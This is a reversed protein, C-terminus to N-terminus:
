TEGGSISTRPSKWRPFELLIVCGSAVLGCLVGGELTTTPPHHESHVPQSCRPQLTLCCLNGKDSVLVRRADKARPFSHIDPPRSSRLRSCWSLAMDGITHHEEISSKSAELLRTHIVPLRGTISCVCCDRTYGPPNGCLSDERSHV